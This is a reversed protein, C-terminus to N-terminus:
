LGPCQLVLLDTTDDKYLLKRYFRRKLEYIIVDM